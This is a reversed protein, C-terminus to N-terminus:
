LFHTKKNKITSSLQYSVQYTLVCCLDGARTRKTRRLCTKGPKSRSIMNRKMKRIIRAFSCLRVATVIGNERNIGVSLNKARTTVVIVCARHTLANHLHLSFPPYWFYCPPDSSHCILHKSGLDDCRRARRLVVTQGSGDVFSVEEVTLLKSLHTDHSTNVSNLLVERDALLGRCEDTIEDPLKDNGFQELLEHVCAMVAEFYVEEANEAARFYREMLDTNAARQDSYRNEFESVIMEVREVLRVEQEMLRETLETNAKRLVLMEKNTDIFTDAEMNAEQEELRQTIGDITSRELDRHMAICDVAEQQRERQAAELAVDLAQIEAVQREHIALGDGNIDDALATLKEAYDDKLQQIGPLILLKVMEHDEMFMSDFLTEIPDICAATLAATLEAKTRDREALADAMREKEEMEMLDDQYQERAALVESEEVMIFDLFRLHPLFALVVMKYEPEHVVPNDDMCLVRLNRFSRLEKVNDLDSIKNNGLSLVELETLAELGEITEIANNFLSVDKLKTLQSLGAIQEINNFSLDLWTLNVLHDINEIRSITNNDLKLTHLASLGVLNKIESINLYSLALSEIEEFRVEVRDYNVKSEEDDGARKKERRALAQAADKEERNLRMDHRVSTKIMQDNIVGTGRRLSHLGASM